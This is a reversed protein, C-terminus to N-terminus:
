LTGLIQKTFNTVLDSQLAAEKSIEVIREGEQLNLIATDVNRILFIQFGIGETIESPFVGIDELDDINVELLLEEYLERKACEHVNEDDEIGGGFPAIRGPNVTTKFDRQQLLYTGAITRLMIGTGLIRM